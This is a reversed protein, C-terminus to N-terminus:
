AEVPCAGAAGGLGAGRCGVWKGAVPVPPLLPLLAVGRVVTSGLTVTGDRSTCGGTGSTSAAGGGGRAEYAVGVKTM